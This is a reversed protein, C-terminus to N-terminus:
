KEKAYILLRKLTTGIPTCTQLILVDGTVETVASVETPWVEKMDYVEYTYETDNRTLIIHDNKKLEGLRLFITNFRTVEWPFGSSHAFLFIVGKEGPLATDKAQAVGKQLAPRYISESWPDVGPIIPSQAHIKPITITLGHLTSIPRLQPPLLYAFLLPYLVFTFFSISSVILINGLYYFFSKNFM